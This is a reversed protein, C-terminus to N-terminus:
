NVGELENQWFGTLHLKVTTSAAVQDLDLALQEGEILWIEDDFTYSINAQPTNQECLQHKYGHGDIYLRARYNGGGLAKNIEWSVHQVCHVKGPPIAKASLTVLAASSFLEELRDRLAMKKGM